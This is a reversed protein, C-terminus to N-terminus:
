EDKNREYESILKQIALDIFKGKTCNLEKCIVNIKDNSDSSIAITKWGANSHKVKTDKIDNIEM